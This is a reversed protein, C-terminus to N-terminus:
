APLPVAVAPFAAAPTELAVTAIFGIKLARGENDITAEVDFSRSREDAKEAIKSVSARFRSGAIAETHVSVGDGIKLRKQVSDPVGFVIKVRTIDAVVFAIAGPAVLDGVEVGRHLVVGDLPSRLETDSLAISAQGVRAVAAVREGVASDYRAKM